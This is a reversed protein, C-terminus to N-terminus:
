NPACFCNATTSSPSFYNLLLLSGQFVRGVGGDFADGQPQLVASVQQCQVAAAPVQCM